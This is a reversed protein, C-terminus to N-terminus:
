SLRERLTSISAEDDPPREAVHLHKESDRSRLEAHRGGATPTGREGQRTTDVASQERDAAPRRGRKIDAARGNQPGSSSSQATGLGQVSGNSEPGSPAVRVAMGRRRPAPSPSAPGTGTPNSPEMQISEPGGRRSARRRDRRNLWSDVLAVAFSTALIGAAAVAILTRLKATYGAEPELDHTLVRSSIQATSGISLDTQLAALTSPVEDIIAQLTNSAEVSDKADVEISLIPGSTTFDRSITYESGPFRRNLDQASQQSNLARALVDVAQNLGGLQLYPNGDEPVSVPPPLLVVSAKTGYTPPVVSWVAVCLATTGLLGIVAIYWRRVMATGFDRILLPRRGGRLEGTNVTM